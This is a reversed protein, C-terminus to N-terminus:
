RLDRACSSSSSDGVSYSAANAILPGIESQGSFLVDLSPKGTIEVHLVALGAVVLGAVPTLLILRREVHPRLALALRHIATGVVAALVGIIIAWIFEGGTPSGVPPLNPISLSFTGLGTWADLGVFILSGVGAAVLGPVLVLELTAGGLGSAEMLLFAGLLPSGLLTSIAAFSGAAAVM